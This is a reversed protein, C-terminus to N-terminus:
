IKIDSWATRSERVQCHQISLLHFFLLNFTVVFSMTDILNELALKNPIHDRQAEQVCGRELPIHFKSLWSM